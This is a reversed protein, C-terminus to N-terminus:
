GNERKNWAEIAMDKVVAGGTRCGCGNCHIYWVDGASNKHMRIDSHGCFPCSKLEAETYEMELWILICRVPSSYTKITDRCPCSKCNRERCFKKFERFRDEATKFKEGNTM